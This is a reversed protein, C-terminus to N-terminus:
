LSGSPPDRRVTIKLAQASDYYEFVVIDDERINMFRAFSSRDIFNKSKFFEYRARDKFMIDYTLLFPGANKSRVIDAFEGLTVCRIPRYGLRRLLGYTECLPLGVVNSYSGRMEEVFVEAFGQIGYAGAKDYPEGTDLYFEIEDDELVKFKVESRVIASDVTGNLFVVVSTEVIHTRGSLIKLMSRASERDRPKGLIRDDVIVATDAAIYITDRERDVSQIKKLAMDLTSTFRAGEDSFLPKLTQFSPVIRKLLEVRRPSASVLVVKLM